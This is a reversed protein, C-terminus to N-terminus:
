GSCCVHVVTRAVYQQMGTPERMSHMAVLMARHFSVAAGQATREHRGESHAVLRTVACKSM